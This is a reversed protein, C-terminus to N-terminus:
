INFNSFKDDFDGKFEINIYRINSNNSDKSIDIKIYKPLIEEILNGWEIISIGKDFYETGGIAYFEDIDALRYVDFHFINITDKSYENVITFTPSSIENELGWFSLFGETFKTKGSGLEGTLIIVDGKSVKAALSKAIDKTENESNSVFKLM